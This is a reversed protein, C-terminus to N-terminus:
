LVCQAFARPARSKPVRPMVASQHIVTTKARIVDPLSRTALSHLVVVRDALELSRRAPQNDPLDRYLDTGTCVVVVPVEPLRTRLDRVSGASRRAHLAILLDPRSLSDWAEALQVEYGLKRLFRAWRGTTTTNGSSGSRHEPNTILIRGTM